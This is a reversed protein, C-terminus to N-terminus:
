CDTFTRLLNSEIFEVAKKFSEIAKEFTIVEDIKAYSMSDVFDIYEQKYNKNNM